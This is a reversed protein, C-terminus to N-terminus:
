GRPPHSTAEAIFRAFGSDIAFRRGGAPSLHMKDSYLVRGSRSTQACATSNCLAPVPDVIVMEPHKDQVQLVKAKYDARSATLANRPIRSSCSNGPLKLPRLFCAPPTDFTPIELIYVIRSYRQLADVLNTLGTAFVNADENEDAASLSKSGSESEFFRLGNGVLVIMPPRTDRVSNVFSSWTDNCDRRREDSEYAGPSAEVNLAPPCGGRGLLLFSHAGGLTSVTGEYIGLAQSDGLFAVEPPALNTRRCYNFQGQKLVSALCNPDERPGQKSAAVEASFRDPFGKQAWVGIGVLGLVAAAAVLGLSLRLRGLRRIPLEIFEYTLIALLMSLLVAAVRIALEPTGSNLIAAFSIIPWHWLYLPYSILGVFVSARHALVEDRFWSHTTAAIICVAGATPVLTAVGPYPTHSDFAFVAIAILITGVIPLLAASSNLPLRWM